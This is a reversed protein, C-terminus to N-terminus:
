RTLASMRKSRGQCDARPELTPSIPYGPYELRTRQAKRLIQLITTTNSHCLLTCGLKSFSFLLIASTSALTTYSATKMANYDPLQPFRKRRKTRKRNLFSRKFCRPLHGTPSHSHPLVLWWRNAISASRGRALASSYATM